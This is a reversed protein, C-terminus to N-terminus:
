GVGITKSFYLAIEVAAAITALLAVGVVIRYTAVQSDNSIYLGHAQRKTDALTYVGLLVFTVIGAALWALVALVLFTSSTASDAAVPAAVALLLGLGCAAAAAILWGWPGQQATM